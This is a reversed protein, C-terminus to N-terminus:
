NTVKLGYKEFIALCWEPMVEIKQGLVYPYIENAKENLLRRHESNVIEGGFVNLRKQAILIDTNLKENYVVMENGGGYVFLWALLECCYEDSLVKLGAAESTELLLKYFNKEM